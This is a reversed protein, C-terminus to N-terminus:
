KMLSFVSIGYERELMDCFLPVPFGMVNYFDGDIKEVLASGLGQIAYSGAKGMPEGSAVYKETDAESVARMKVTTRASQTVTKGGCSLTLGSYVDHYSDSLLRLTVHAHLPSEPKGIIRGGYVVVTDCAIVLTDDTVAKNKMVADCKRKSLECVYEWPAMSEDCNEDADPSIVTFNLGLRGLIEKRRPSSSALIIKNIM